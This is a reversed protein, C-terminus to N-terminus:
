NGTLANQSHLQQLVNNPIPIQTTQTRNNVTNLPVTSVLVGIGGIFILGVTIGIWSRWSPTNATKKRAKTKGTSVPRKEAPPRM